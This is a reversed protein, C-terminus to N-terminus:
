GASVLKPLAHVTVYVTYMFAGAAIAVSFKVMGGDLSIKGFRKVTIEADCADRYPLLRMQLYCAKLYNLLRRACAGLQKNALMIFLSIAGGALFSYAIVEVIQQPGLIAGCSMLLKIDGAGLMKLKYLAILSVFPIMISLMMALLVQKVGRDPLMAGMVTNIAAGLAVGSFTLWNPIRANRLDCTVAFALLTTLSITKIIFFTTQM